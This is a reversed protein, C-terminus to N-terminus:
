LSSALYSHFLTYRTWGLPTSVVVAALGLINQLTPESPNAGTLIIYFMFPTSPKHLAVSEEIPRYGALLTSDKTIPNGIM